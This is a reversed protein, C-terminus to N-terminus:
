SGAVAHHSVVVRSPIQHRRRTHRFLDLTYECLNFLNIWRKKYFIFLPRATPLPKVSFNKGLRYLGETVLLKGHM